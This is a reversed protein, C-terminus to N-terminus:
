LYVVIYTIDRVSTRDEFRTWGVLFRKKWKQLGRRERLNRRRIQLRMRLYNVMNTILVFNFPVRIDKENYM